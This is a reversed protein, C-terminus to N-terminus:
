SKKHVLHVFSAPRRRYKRIQDKWFMDRLSNNNVKSLYLINSWLFSKLAWKAKWRWLDWSTRRFNRLIEEKRPKPLLAREQCNWKKPDETVTGTLPPPSLKGPFIPTLPLVDIIVEAIVISCAQALAIHCSFYIFDMVISFSYMNIRKDSPMITFTSVYM